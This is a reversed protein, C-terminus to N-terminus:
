AFMIKSVTSNNPPSGTAVRYLIMDKKLIEQYFIGPTLCIIKVDAYKKLADLLAFVHTKAGGSDGGSIMHLIKM